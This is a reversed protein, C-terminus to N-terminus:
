ALPLTFFFTAGSGVKSEVWIRGGHAEVLRRCVNLGLGVGGIGETNELREFPKFLRAQDEASIGMGHDKVGIVLSADERRASIVVDGGAPSYKVANSVLNQLVREVRIRDADVAPLGPPIEIVLRHDTSQGTLRSMMNGVIEAIALPEQRITLRNAHARSLELLNEVMAALSDTMAAADQLLQQKEDATIGKSLATYISGMIVTIPTKLEHSVMGIFEDKIREAQKHGTIDRLIGTIFVGDGAKWTALSLEVPFESGDKRLGTVEVVRGLIRAEGGSVLRKMGEGHVERWREPMIMGISKGAVEGAAYGFMSEAGRNWLIIEGRSDVTIIADHATQTVARFRTESKELAEYTRSNRLAIAALEAFATTVRADNENFGGPKNALGLLGIARGDIVMPAFMVSDLRAHGAPLYAVRQGAAFDNDYVAKREDYAVARLGRVPMPLSVDVSCPMGGADLFLVENERGDEKLLAVYGAAAGIVSKCSDFILRATHTFEEHQLVARAGELLAVVERQRQRSQALADELAAEVQRRQGIEENLDLNVKQLESTRESVTSELDHHHRVLDVEAQRRANVERVADNRERRLNSALLSFAIGVLLFIVLIPLDKVNSAGFVTVTYLPPIFFYDYALVSLICTLIAPGLGFFAATPVIALLYLIPVDAPIITPQALYKLWTAATVLAIAVPYGWWDSFTRTGLRGAFGMRNKGGARIEEAMGRSIVSQLGHREFRDLGVERRTSKVFRRAATAGAGFIAQM